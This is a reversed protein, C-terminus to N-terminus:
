FEQSPTFKNEALFFDWLNALVNQIDESVFNEISNKTWVYLDILLFNVNEEIEKLQEM